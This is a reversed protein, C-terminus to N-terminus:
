FSIKLGWEVSRPAGAASMGSGLTTRNSRVRFGGPSSGGVTNQPQVLTASQFLSGAGFNLFGNQTNGLADFNAFNLVNFLGISPTITFRERVRHEWSLRLDFTKLWGLGAVDQVPSALPQVVAGMRELDALSFVGGNILMIGAPTEPNGGGAVNTNYSDIFSRL